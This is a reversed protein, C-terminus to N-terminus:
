VQEERLSHLSVARVGGWRGRWRTECAPHWGTRCCRPWPADRALCIRGGDAGMVGQLWPGQTGVRPALLSCLAAETGPQAGFPKPLRGQVAVGATM